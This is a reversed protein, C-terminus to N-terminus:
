KLFKFRFSPMTRACCLHESGVVEVEVHREGLCAGYVVGGGVVDRHAGRHAAEGEVWRGQLLALVLRLDDEGGEVEVALALRYWDQMGLLEGYGGVLTVQGDAEGREVIRSLVLHLVLVSHFAAGRRALPYRQAAAVDDAEVADGVAVVHQLHLGGVGVAYPALVDALQGDLHARGEPLADPASHEQQQYQHDDHSGDEVGVVLALALVHVMLHADHLVIEEAVGGMAQAGREGEDSTNCSSCPM